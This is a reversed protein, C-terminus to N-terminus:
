RLYPYIVPEAKFHVSLHSCLSCQKWHWSKVKQLGKNNERYSFMQATTQWHNFIRKNLRMFWLLSSSKLQKANRLWKTFLQIGFDVWILGWTFITRLTRLWKTRKPWNCKIVLNFYYDLSSGWWAKNSINGGEMRNSVGVLMPRHNGDIILLERLCPRPKCM